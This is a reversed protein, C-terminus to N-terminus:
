LHLGVGLWASALEQRESSLPDGQASFTQYRAETTLFFGQNLEVGVGGSLEAGVLLGSSAPPRAVTEVHPVLLSAGVGLYPRVRADRLPTLRVTVPTATTLLRSSAVHGGVEAVANPRRYSWGVGASYGVLRGKPTGTLLFAGVPAVTLGLSQGNARAPSALLWPVLFLFPALRRM